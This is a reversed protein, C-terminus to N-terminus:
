KPTVFNTPTSVGGSCVNVPTVGTNGGPGTTLVPGPAATIPGHVKVSPPNQGQQCNASGNQNPTNVSAFNSIVLSRRATMNVLWAFTQPDLHQPTGLKATTEGTYLDEHVQQISTQMTAWASQGNLLSLSRGPRLLGSCDQEKVTIEGEWQPTLLSLFYQGALGIPPTEATTGTLQTLDISGIIGGPLDPIGAVDQTITQVQTKFQSLVTGGTTNVVGNTPDTCGPPVQVNCLEFGVYNFRVGIPVLDNRPRLSFGTVFNDQSLDIFKPTLFARQQANLVPLGASYDFWVQGDPTWQMCRRIADALTLDRTEEFPVNIFSPTVGLGIPVGISIAYLAINDIQQGTTIAGGTTPDQFLVVKTMKLSELVCQPSYCQSAEQWLSRKLQYWPGSVVYHVVETQTNGVYQIDTITGQFWPYTVGGYVKFLRVPLGYAFASVALVNSKIDFSFEDTDMNRFSLRPNEIGFAALTGAVSGIVPFTVEMYWVAPPNAGM